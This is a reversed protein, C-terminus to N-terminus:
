KVLWVFTAATFAVLYAATTGSLVRSVGSGNTPAVSPPDTVTTDTPPSPMSSEVPPPCCLDASLDTIYTCETENLYGELAFYDIGGCSISDGEPLTVSDGNDIVSQGPGCIYCPEYYIIADDYCCSEQAVATYAPCTENDITGNYYASYHLDYCTMGGVGPVTVNIDDNSYPIFGYAGCVVCSVNAFERCCSEQAVESLVSCTANLLPYSDYASLFIDYCSVDGVGPITATVNDYAYPIVASPGCVECYEFVPYEYCCTERAYPQVFSCTDNDLSANRYAAYDLDGCTLEGFGPITLNNGYYDYRVQGTAGCLKCFNECCSSQAVASAEPCKEVSIQNYYSADYLGYCTTDGFGELFVPIDTNNYPIYSNDGCLNCDGVEDIPQFCAQISNSAELVTGGGSSPGGVNSCDFSVDYDYLVECSTCSQGNYETECTSFDASYTVSLSETIPVSFVYSSTLSTFSNAEFDYALSKSGCTEYCGYFISGFCAEDRLNCSITGTKTTNDFSSCDCTYIGYVSSTPDCLGVDETLHVLGRATRSPNVCFGGSNSDQNKVCSEDPGCSLIGLDPAAPDCEVLGAQGQSNQRATKLAGGNGNGFGARPQKARGTGTTTGRAPRVSDACEGGLDSSKNPKCYRGEGCSLVGTDPDTSSPDCAASGARTSTSGQLANKLKGSSSKETSKVGRKKNKAEQAAQARPDRPDVSQKKAMCIGGLVSDQSRKCMKGSGCSLVGVDPDASSPDCVVLDLSGAVTPSPAVHVNKLAGSRSSEANKKKSRGTRTKFRREKQAGGTDAVRARHTIDGLQLKRGAHQRDLLASIKTESVVPLTQALIGAAISLKM